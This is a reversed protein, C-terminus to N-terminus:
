GLALFNGTFLKSEAVNEQIGPHSHGITSHLSVAMWNESRLLLKCFRNFGRHAVEVIWRRAKKRSDRNFEGAEQGREKVYPVYGYREIVALVPAGTCGADARRYKSRRQPPLARKVM